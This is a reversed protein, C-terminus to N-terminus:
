LTPLTRVLVSVVVALQPVAFRMEVAGIGAVPRPVCCRHCMNQTSPAPSRVEIGLAALSPMVTALAVSQAVGDTVGVSVLVGVTVTVGVIVAVAVADAEKM